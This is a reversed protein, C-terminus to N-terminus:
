PQPELDYIVVTTNQDIARRLIEVVRSWDGGALGCGIRPMHISVGTSSAFMGVSMLCTELATYDLPVPNSPSRLGRQAIMNAIIIPRHSVWIPLQTVGLTKPNDLYVQKAVPYRRSLAGSFGAGWAGVDNCVHAILARGSVDLAPLTADGTTYSIM